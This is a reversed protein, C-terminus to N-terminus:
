HSRPSDYGDPHIRVKEDPVLNTPRITRREPGLPPVKGRLYTKWNMLRTWYSQSSEKPWRESGGSIVVEAVIPGGWTFPQCDGRTDPSGCPVTLKKQDVFRGVLLWSLITKQKRAAIFASRYGNPGHYTLSAGRRVLFVVSEMRGDVCAAMLASGHTCGEFNLPCDLDLLNEMAKVEVRSAFQCLPSWHESPTMNAFTHLSEVRYKKRFLRYATNIWAPALVIFGWNYPLSDELRFESNLICSAFHPMEVAQHFASFGLARPIHPNVGARVSEVFTNCSKRPSYPIVDLISRNRYDSVTRDAGADLLANVGALTGESAALLLPTQGDRNRLELDAGKRILVSVVEVDEIRVAAHLPTNLLSLETGNIDAGFKLLMEIAETNECLVAYILPTNGRVDTEALAAM